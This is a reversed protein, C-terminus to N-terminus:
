QEVREGVRRSGNRDTQEEVYELMGERMARSSKLSVVLGRRGVAMM